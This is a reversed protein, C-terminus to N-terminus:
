WLYCKDAPNMTTNFECKFIKAFSPVNSIAGHVRVNGQSHVDYQIITEHLEDKVKSCWLQAYSIFFIQDHNLNLGPFSGEEEGRRQVWNRYARYSQELGIHDAVNENLTTEGNVQYGDWKYANYQHVYCDALAIFNVKDSPDWWDSLEGNEDFRSGQVDFGHSIEHGIISGITGYKMSSSGKPYYFPEGMIGALIYMSNLRSNYYANVVSTSAPWEHKFNGDAALININELASNKLIILCLDFFGLMKYGPKFINAYYANLNTDDLLSDPYAVNFDMASLKAKAKLKTSNSLWNNSDLIEHFSAKIDKIMAIVFDKEETNFYKNIYLRGVAEPLKEETIRVCQQSRVKHPMKSEDPPYKENLERFRYDLLDTFTLLCSMMYNAMDRKSTSNVIDELENLYWDRELLVTDTSEIVVNGKAAITKLVKLWDLWKYKEKLQDITLQYAATPTESSALIEIFAGKVNKMEEFDAKLVNIDAGLLQLAEMMFARHNTENRPSLAHYPIDITFVKKPDRRYPDVYLTMFPMLGLEHLKIVLDEINFDSEVWSANLIPFVGISHILDILPKAGREDIQDINLCSAYFNEAVAEYIPDSEITKDGLLGLLRSTVNGVINSVSGIMSAGHALHASELWKGCSYQYFDECPDVDPDM